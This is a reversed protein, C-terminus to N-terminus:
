SACNSITAPSTDRTWAAGIHRRTLSGFYSDFFTMSREKHELVLQNMTGPLPLTGIDRAHFRDALCGIYACASRATGPPFGGCATLESIHLRATAAPSRASISLVGM